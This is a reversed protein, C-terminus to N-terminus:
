HQSQQDDECQSKKSKGRMSPPLDEEILERCTVIGGTGKEIKIAISLMIDKRNLINLLTRHSIGARKCFNLQTEGLKELYTKLQM